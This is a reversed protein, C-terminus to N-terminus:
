ATTCSLGDGPEPSSWMWRGGVAGSCVLRERWDSFGRPRATGLLWNPPIPSSRPGCAKCMNSYLAAEGSATKYSGTVDSYLADARIANNYIGASINYLAAYGNATNAAWERASALRRDWLPVALPKVRKVRTTSTAM